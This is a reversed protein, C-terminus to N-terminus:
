GLVNNEKIATPRGKAAKLGLLLAISRAFASHTEDRAGMIIYNDWRELGRIIENRDKIAEASRGNRKIGALVSFPVTAPAHFNPAYFPM